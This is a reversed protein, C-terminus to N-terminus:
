NKRWTNLLKKMVIILIIIIIFLFLIILYTLLSSLFEDAVILSGSLKVMGDAGGISIENVTTVPLFPELLNSKSNVRNSDSSKEEQIPRDSTDIISSGSYENKEGHLAGISGSKIHSDSRNNKDSYEPALLNIVSQLSKVEESKAFNDTKTKVLYKETDAQHSILKFKEGKGRRYDDNFKIYESQLRVNYDQIKSSDQLIRHIEKGLDYTGM